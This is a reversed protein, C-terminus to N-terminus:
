LPSEGPQPTASAPSEVAPDPTAPAATDVGGLTPEAVPPAPIRPTSVGRPTPLPDAPPSVPVPDGGLLVYATIALVALVILAGVVLPTSSMTRTSRLPAAPFREVIDQDAARPNARPPITAQRTPVPKPRPPAPVPAPAPEPVAPPADPPATSSMPAEEPEPPSAPASEWASGYEPASEPAVTVPAAEWPFAPAGGAAAPGVSPALEDLSAEHPSELELMPDLDGPGMEQHVPDVLDEEVIEEEVPGGHALDEELFALDDPTADLDLGPAGGTLELDPATEMELLEAPPHEVLEEDSDALQLTFDAPLEELLEGPPAEFEDAPLLLDGASGGLDGLTFQMMLASPDGPEGLWLFDGSRLPASGVVLDDNVGVVGDLELIMAGASDIVVRAHYGAVGMVDVRIGCDECSGIVVDTDYFEFSQGALPGGLPQLISPQAM